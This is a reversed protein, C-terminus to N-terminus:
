PHQVYVGAELAIIGDEWAAGCPKLLYSQSGLDPPLVACCLQRISERRCTPRTQAEVLVWVCSTLPRCLLLQPPPNPLSSPLINTIPGKFTAKIIFLPNLTDPGSLFGLAM